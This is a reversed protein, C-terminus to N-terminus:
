YQGGVDDPKAWFQRLGMVDKIIGIVQEVTCKRLRYFAKGYNTKLKHAMKLKPSADPPQLTEWIM